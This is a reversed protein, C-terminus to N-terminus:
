LVHILPRTPLAVCHSCVINDGKDKVLQSILRNLIIDPIGTIRPEAAEERSIDVPCIMEIQNSRSEWGEPATCFSGHGAFYVLIADGCEKNINPNTSFAQLAEIIHYKTADGDLLKKIHNPPVSLSNILFNEIDNADKVAGKLPTWHQYDNIGIVLAFLNTPLDRPFKLNCWFCSYASSM